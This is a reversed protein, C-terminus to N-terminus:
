SGLLNFCGHSAATQVGASGLLGLSGAPRLSPTPVGGRGQGPGGKVGQEAQLSSTARRGAAAKAPWAEGQM